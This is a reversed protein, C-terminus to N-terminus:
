RARIADRAVAGALSLVHHLAIRRAVGPFHELGAIGGPSERTAAAHALVQAARGLEGAAVDPTLVPGDVEVIRIDPGRQVGRRLLEGDHHAVCLRVYRCRDRDLLVVARRVGRTRGDAHGGGGDCRQVKAYELQTRPLDIARRRAGEVGPSVRCQAARCVADAGAHGDNGVLEVREVVDAYKGVIRRQEPRSVRQAVVFRSHLVGVHYEAPRLGNRRALIRVGVEVRAIGDIQPSEERDDSSSVRRADHNAGRCRDDRSSRDSRRGRPARNFGREGREIDQVQFGTAEVGVEGARDHLGVTRDHHEAAAFRAVRREELLEGLSTAACIVQLFLEIVNSGRALM